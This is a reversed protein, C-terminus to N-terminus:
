IGSLLGGCQNSSRHRQDGGASGAASVAVSSTTPLEGRRGGPAIMIAHAAHISRGEHVRSTVGLELTTDFAPLRLIRSPCVTFQWDEDDLRYITRNQGGPRTEIRDTNLVEIGKENVAVAGCDGESGCLIQGFESSGDVYNIAFLGFRGVRNRMWWSSGYDANGWMLEVVIHGTVKEGLYQGAIRYAQQHYFMLHSEGDESRSPLLWQGGNGCLAGAIAISQGPSNWYFNTQDYGFSEGETAYEIAGDDRRGHRVTGQMPRYRPDPALGAPAARMGGLWSSATLTGINDRSIVLSVFYFRGEESVLMADLFSNRHSHGFYRKASHQDAPDVRYGGILLKNFQGMKPSYDRALIRYTM